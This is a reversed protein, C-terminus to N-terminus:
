FVVGIWVDYQDFDTKATDDFDHSSFEVKTRVYPKPWYGVTIVNSERGLGGGDKEDDGKDLRYYLYTSPLFQWKAAAYWTEVDSFGTDRSQNLYEGTITVGHPLYIEAYPFLTEEKRGSKGPNSQTYGTLGVKVTEAFTANIDTGYAFKNDTPKNTGFLDNGTSSWVSYNVEPSLVSTPSAWNGFVELGVQKNPVYKNNEHIPKQVSPVNIAWHEPTWIGLPTNFKGVRMNMGDAQYYEIYIREMKLQGNSGTGKLDPLHEFELETYSRWNDDLQADFFLYFHHPDFIPKYGDIDRDRYLFDVWGGIRVKSTHHNEEHEELAEMIAINLDDSADSSLVSFGLIGSFVLVAVLIRLVQTQVGKKISVISEKKM